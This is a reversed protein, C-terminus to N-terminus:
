SAMEIEVDHGLWKRLVAEDVVEQNAKQYQKHNFGDISRQFTRLIEEATAWKKRTQRLTELVEAEKERRARLVTLQQGLQKVNRYCAIWIDMSRDAADQLMASTRTIEEEVSRIEADTQFLVKAAAQLDLEAQEKRLEYYRLVSGLRFQRRKM